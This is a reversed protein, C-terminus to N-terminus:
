SRVIERLENGKKILLKAGNKQEGEIFDENVIAQQLADVFGIKGRAAIAELARVTEVPLVYEQEEGDGIKVVVRTTEQESSAM